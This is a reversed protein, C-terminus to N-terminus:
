LYKAYAQWVREQSGGAANLIRDIDANDLRLLAQLLRVTNVVADGNAECEQRAMELIADTQASFPVEPITKSEPMVLRQELMLRFRGVDVGAKALIGLISGPHERLIAVFINHPEVEPQNLRHAEERALELTRKIPEALGAPGSPIHQPERALERGGVLELIRRREPDRNGRYFSEANERPSHYRQALEPDAGHLILFEVLPVLANGVAFNLLSSGHGLYDVPFGRELLAVLVQFRDNLAAVFFAEWVVELPDAIALPPIYGRPFMARIDPRHRFASDNPRGQRDFYRGLARVDGLGAAIWLAKRPVVRAAILDVAEGNWYRFLAHELVTIGNPPLWNPDAGRELLFVVRETTIRMHGLLMHNLLDQLDAGQAVLWDTLERDAPSRSEMERYLAGYILTSDFRQDPSRPQM